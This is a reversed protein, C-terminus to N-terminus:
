NTKTISCLIKEAIDAIGEINLLESRNKLGFRKLFEKTTRYIAPQGAFAVGGLPEILYYKQLTALASESDKGRIADVESKKVPEILAIILLTAKSEESLRVIHSHELLKIVPSFEVRTMLSIEDKIERIFLPSHKQLEEKLIKLSLSLDADSIHLVEKIKNKSMGQKVFLISYIDMATRLHKEDSINKM